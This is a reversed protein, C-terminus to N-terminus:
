DIGLVRRCVNELARISLHEKAIDYNKQLIEAQPDDLFQLVQQATEELKEESLYLVDGKKTYFDGLSFLDFGLPKINSKYVPYEYIVIPKKAAIAEILQNGWGEYTSTYTVLDATVYFDWLSFTGESRTHTCLDPVFTPTFGIEDAFRLLMEYYPPDEELGPFVLHIKKSSLEQMKVCVQLAFEISKRKVIRTAHLVFIDDDAIGLTHRLKGNYDDKAFTVAEFDFYNDVVVSELNKRERLSQQAISNIVLHQALNQPPFYKEVLEAIFSCTVNYIEREWHFDHHFGVIRIGLEECTDSIAVALPLNLPLSFVNNVVVVDPKTTSFFSILARYAGDYIKRYAARLENETVSLKTFANAFFREVDRHRYSLYPDNYDGGSGAIIFCEGGMNTIAKKWKDMELSVGDTEGARFHLLAVNM